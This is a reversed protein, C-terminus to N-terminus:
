RNESMPMLIIISDSFRWFAARAPVMDAEAMVPANLWAQEFM